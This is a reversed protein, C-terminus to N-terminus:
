CEYSQIEDLFEGLADDKTMYSHSLRSYVMDNNDEFYYQKGFYVGSILEFMEYADKTMIAQGKDSNNTIKAIEIDITPMDMVVDMLAEFTSFREANVEDVIRESMDVKEFFRKILTDRRIYKAM